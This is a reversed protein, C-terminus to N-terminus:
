RIGGLDRTTDVPDPQVVDQLSSWLYDGYSPDCWIRYRRHAANGQPVVTVAVGIMLTMVAERAETRLAAFNVNCLQALVEDAGAGSLLVACDERLVPYVGPLYTALEANLRRLVNGDTQELFFEASGLRVCINQEDENTVCWSNAREPVAIGQQRLWAAANPGKLGIRALHTVQQLTAASM